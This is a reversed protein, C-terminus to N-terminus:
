FVLVICICIKRLHNNLSNSSSIKSSKKNKLSSLECLESKKNQFFGCKKKKKRMARKLVHGYECIKFFLYNAKLADSEPSLIAEQYYNGM